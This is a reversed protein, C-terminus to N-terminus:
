LDPNGYILTGTSDVIQINPNAEFVPSLNNSPDNTEDIPSYDSYRIGVATQSEGPWSVLHPLTFGTYDYKIRYNGGGLDELSVVANPSSWDELIPTRGNEATFYYYVIFDSIDDGRNQVYINPGSWAPDYLKDEQSWAVVDVIPTRPPRVPPVQGYILRGASDFVAIRPNEAFTGSLNNSFDNGRDWPSWDAYHLGVSIEDEPLSEGHPLTYGTYDYEVAYQEVGRQILAVPAEELSWDELVPEQFWETDFYYYVKFDSIERGSQNTIRTEVGSTNDTHLNTDRSEVVLQTPGPTDAATPPGVDISYTGGANGNLDEIVLIQGEEVSEQPIALSLYGGRALATFANGSVVPTGDSGYVTVLPAMGFRTNYLRVNLGQSTDVGVVRFFDRDGAVEIKGPHEAYDPLIVTATEPSNGHDDGAVGEVRFQIDRRRSFTKGLPRFIPDLVEGDPGYEGQPVIVVGTGSANSSIVSLTYVGDETYDGVIGSYLGDGAHADNGVGDDNMAVTRVVGSPTTLTAAVDLGTLESEEFTRAFVEIPEPYVYSTKHSRTVLEIPAAAGPVASLRRATISGGAGSFSPVLQWQGVGGAQLAPQDVRITARFSGDPNTQTFVQRAAATGGPTLVTFDVAGGANLEYDVTFVLQAFVVDLSFAEANDIFPVDQVSLADGLAIRMAEQLDPAATIGHHFVGGTGEALRQLPGFFSENMDRDAYGVTHMRVGADQYLGLVEAETVTGSANDNGDSLLFVLRHANTGNSTRFSELKELSAKAGAFMATDDGVTIAAIANKVATQDAASDIAQLPVVGTNVATEFTTVGLTTRTLPVGDVFGSAATIVNQLPTGTMSGSIDLILDMEVNSSDLWVVNLHELPDTANPNDYLDPIMSPYTVGDNPSTWTNASTPAVAALRPYQVNLPFHPVFEFEGADSVLPASSRSRARPRENCTKVLMPWGREGWITIQTLGAEQYQLTEPTSINLWQLDPQTTGYSAGFQAVSMLTIAQDTLERDLARSYEDGLAYAYHVFEHTLVYGLQERQEPTGRVHDIYDAGGADIHQTLDHVYIKGLDDLIGGMVARAGPRESAVGHNWIIDAFRKQHGNQHITINRIKHAGNSAEYVGRAFHELVDEYLEREASTPATWLSITLDFVQDDGVVALFDDDYCDGNLKTQADSPRAVLSAAAAILALTSIRRGYRIM